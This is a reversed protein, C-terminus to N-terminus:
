AGVAVGVHSLADSVGQDFTTKAAAAYNGRVLTLVNAPSTGPVGAMNYSKDAQSLIASARELNAVRAKIDALTGKGVQRRIVLVSALGAAYESGDDVGEANILSQLRAECAAVIQPTIKM